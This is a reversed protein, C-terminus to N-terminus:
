PGIAAGRGPTPSAEMFGFSKTLPKHLRLAKQRAQTSTESVAVNTAAWPTGGARTSSGVSGVTSGIGSGWYGCLVTSSAQFAVGGGRNATFAGGLAGLTRSTSISSMPNPWDLAKPPSMWM